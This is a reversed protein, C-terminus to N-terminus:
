LFLPPSSLPPLPTTAPPLLPPAPPAPAPPPPLQGCGSDRGGGPVHRTEQVRGLAAGSRRPLRQRIARVIRCARAGASRGRARDFLGRRALGGGHLAGARSEGRAEKALAVSLRERPIRSRLRAGDRGERDAARHRRSEM